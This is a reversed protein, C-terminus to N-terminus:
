RIRDAYKFVYMDREDRTVNSHVQVSDVGPWDLLTRMADLDDGTLYEEWTGPRGVVRGLVRRDTM